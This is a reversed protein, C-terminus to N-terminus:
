LARRDTRGRILLVFVTAVFISYVFPNFAVAVIGLEANSVCSAQVGFLGICRVGMLDQALGSLLFLAVAYSAATVVWVAITNFSSQRRGRIAVTYAPIVMFLLVISAISMVLGVPM